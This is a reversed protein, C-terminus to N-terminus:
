PADHWKDAIDLASIGSPSVRFGLKAASRYEPTPIAFKGQRWSAGPFKNPFKVIKRGYQTSFDVQASRSAKVSVGLVGDRDPIVSVFTNWGAVMTTCGLSSLKSALRTRASEGLEAKVLASHCGFLVIKRANGLGSSRLAMALNDISELEWHPFDRWGHMIVHVGTSSLLRSRNDCDRYAPYDDLTIPRREWGSKMLDRMEQDHFPMYVATGRARYRRELNDQSRSVEADTFIPESKILFVNDVRM